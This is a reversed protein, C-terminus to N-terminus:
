KRPRKVEEYAHRYAGQGMDLKALKGEKYLRQADALPIRKDRSADRTDVVIIAMEPEPKKRMPTRKRLNPVPM